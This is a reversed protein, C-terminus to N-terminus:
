ITLAIWRPMPCSRPSPSLCQDEWSALIAAAGGPRVPGSGKAEEKSGPAKAKSNIRQPVKGEKAVQDGAM